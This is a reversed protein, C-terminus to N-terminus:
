EEGRTVITDWMHRHMFHIWLNNYTTALGECGGVPCGTFGDSRPFSVRYLIPKPTAYLKEWQPPREKGHHAHFHAMLSRSELDLECELCQLREQQRECFSTGVGIMRQTYATRLARWYNLLKSM